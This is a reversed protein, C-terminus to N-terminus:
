AAVKAGGSAICDAIWRDIARSDWASARKGIKIPAPFEGRPVRRYIESRCLGTRACVSPLRELSPTGISGVHTINM